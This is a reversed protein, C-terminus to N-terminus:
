VKLDIDMQMGEEERAKSGDDKVDLKGGRRENVIDRMEVEGTGEM